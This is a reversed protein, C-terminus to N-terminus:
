GGLRGRLGALIRDEEGIWASVRDRAAAIATGDGSNASRDIREAAYIQDLDALAIMADSRASELEALAVSATAWGESGPAGGAGAAVRGEANSRLSEFRKHAEGAQDVLRALQATLEAGPTSPAATPAPVQPPTEAAREAARRALSPYNTTDAACAALMLALAAAALGTHAPIM